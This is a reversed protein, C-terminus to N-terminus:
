AAALALGLAQLPALYAACGVASTRAVQSPEVFSIVPPPRQGDRMQWPNPMRVAVPNEVSVPCSGFIPTYRLLRWQRAAGKGEWAIRVDRFLIRYICAQQDEPLSDFLVLPQERLLECSRALQENDFAADQEQEVARRLRNIEHQTKELRAKYAPIEREFYDDALRQAKDELYALAQEAQSPTHERSQRLWDEALEQASWMVDPLVTRLLAMAIYPSLWQARPCVTGDPAKGANTTRCAYAGKGAGIMPQGCNVCALVGALPHPHVRFRTRVNEPRNFKRQWGRVRAPEWYALEPVHHTFDRIEGDQGIALKSWVTSRGRKECHRGFVYTGTYIPNALLYRLGTLTWRATRGGRGSFTPRQISSGNLSRVVEHLSLCTDFLCALAEMIVAHEPNKAVRKIQRDPRDGPERVTMYGLPPKTLMPEKEVRKFIGSWLTNRITRWDIGALFCHFQFQLLDDDNRLDYEKDWTIFRGGAEVIRRAITGGDIGFEDRTLRKVDGAAIGGIVGRKLDDLMQLSIKRKSLDAGSTGQEDYLRVRYGRGELRAALDAQVESRYNGVQRTTSNRILLGIVVPSGQRTSGPQPLTGM